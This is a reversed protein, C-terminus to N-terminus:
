SSREGPLFFQARECLGLALCHDLCSGSKLLRANLVLDQLGLFLHGHPLLFFTRLM